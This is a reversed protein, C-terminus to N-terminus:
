QSTKPWEGKGLIARAQQCKFKLITLMGGKAQPDDVQEALAELEEDRMAAVKELACKISRRVKDRGMADILTMLNKKNRYQFSHLLSPRLLQECFQDFSCQEPLELDGYFTMGFDIPLWKGIHPDDDLPQFLYNELKMYDHDCLLFRRIVLNTAPNEDDTFEVVGPWAQQSFFTEGRDFGTLDKSAVCHRSQTDDYCYQLQYNEGLGMVAKCVNGALCERQVLVKAKDYFVVKHRQGTISYLLKQLLRKFRVVNSVKSPTKIHWIDGTDKDQLVRHDVTAKAAVWSVPQWIKSFVRGKWNKLSVPPLQVSQQLSASSGEVARKSVEPTHASTLNLRKAAATSKVTRGLRDTAPEETNQSREQTATSYPAGVAGIKNTSM